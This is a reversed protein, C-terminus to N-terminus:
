QNQCQPCLGFFDVRHYLIKYGTTRNMEESLDGLSSLEPDMIEKCRVCIMHPHPFPKCGDYRNSGDPFGLELLENLERLLIITKYVTALSTTPFRGRVAEFVHAVTPHKDSSALVELIALRQPTIRFNRERLRTLMQQLRPSASSFSNVESL